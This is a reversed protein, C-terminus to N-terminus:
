KMNNCFKQLQNSQAQEKFMMMLPLSEEPTHIYRMAEIQCITKMLM